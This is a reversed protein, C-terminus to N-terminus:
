ITSLELLGRTVALQSTVKSIWPSWLATADKGVPEFIALDKLLNTKQRCFNHQAPELIRRDVAGIHYESNSWPSSIIRAVTSLHDESRPELTDDSSQTYTARFLHSVGPSAQHHFPIGCEEGGYKRSSCMGGWWNKIKKSKAM